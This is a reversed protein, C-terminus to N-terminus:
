IFTSLYETKQSDDFCDDPDKATELHWAPTTNAITKAIRHKSARFM